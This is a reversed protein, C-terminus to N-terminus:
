FSIERNAYISNLLGSLDQMPIRVVAGDKKVDIRSAMVVGYDGDPKVVFKVELDRYAVGEWSRDLGFIKKKVRATLDFYTKANSSPFEKWTVKSFYRYEDFAKGITKGPYNALKQQKLMDLMTIRTTEKGTGHVQINFAKGQSPVAGPTASAPLSWTATLMVTVIFIKHVAMKEKFVDINWGSVEHLEEGPYSCM